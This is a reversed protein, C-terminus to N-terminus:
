TDTSGAGAPREGSAIGRTRTRRNGLFLRQADSSSLWPAATAGRSGRTVLRGRAGKETESTMGLGPIRFRREMYKVGWALPVTIILYSVTVMFFVEFVKLSRQTLFYGEATTEHLGITYLLASAKLLGIFENTLPPLILRLAQPLTIYRMTSWYRLGIARAAEIQGQHVAQLGGRFIEGQYAGTNLTLAVIGAYFAINATGLSPFRFILISWVIFIQVLVPTGRMLEIYGYCVRAAGQKLFWVAWELRIRWRVQWPLKEFATQEKRARVRRFPPMKAQAASVRIWGVFFGIVIGLVFSIGTVTLGVPMYGLVGLMHALIYNGDLGRPGVLITVVIALFGAAGLYGSILNLTHFNRHFWSPQPPINGARTRDHLM